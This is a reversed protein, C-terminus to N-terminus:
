RAEFLDSQPDAYRHRGGIYCIACVLRSDALIVWGPEEVPVPRRCVDCPRPTGENQRLARRRRETSM